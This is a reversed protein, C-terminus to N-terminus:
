TCVDESLRVREEKGFEKTMDQRTAPQKGKMFMQGKTCYARKPERASCLYYRANAGLYIAQGKFKKAFVPKCQALMIRGEVPQVTLEDALAPAAAALRFRPLVGETPGVLNLALALRGARGHVRYLEPGEDEDGVAHHAECL